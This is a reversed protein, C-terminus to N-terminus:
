ILQIFYGAGVFGLNNQPNKKHKSFVESQMKKKNKTDRSRFLSDTIQPLITFCSKSSSYAFLHAKRRQIEGSWPPNTEHVKISADHKKAGTGRVWEELVAAAIKFAASIFLGASAKSQCVDGRQARLPPNQNFLLVWPCMKEKNSYLVPHEKQDQNHFM